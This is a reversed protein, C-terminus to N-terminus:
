RDEVHLRPDGARRRDGVPRRGVVLALDSILSYTAYEPASVSVLPIVALLVGVATVFVGIAGILLALTKVQNARRVLSNSPAVNRM